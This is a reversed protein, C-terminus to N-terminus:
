RIWRIKSAKRGRIRVNQADKLTESPLVARFVRGVRGCFHMVRGCFHMVRGCFCVVRGGFRVVRGCFSCVRGCFSCVRGGFRVVRGCVMGVRGGSRVVRGGGVESGDALCRGFVEGAKTVVERVNGCGGRFHERVNWSRKRGGGNVVM